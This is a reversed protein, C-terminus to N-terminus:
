VEVYFYQHNIYKEKKWKKLIGIIDVPANVLPQISTEGAGYKLGKVMVPINMERWFWLANMLIVKEDCTILKRNPTKPGYIVWDPLPNRRWEGSDIRRRIDATFDSFHQITMPELSWMVRNRTHAHIMETDLLLTLKNNLQNTHTWTDSDMTFGLILNKPLKIRLSSYTSYDKTLAVFIHKRHRTHSLKEFIDPLPYITGLSNQAHLSFIKVESDWYSIDSLADIFIIAPEEPFEFELDFQSHLFYPKFQKLQQFITEYIKSELEKSWLNEYFHKLKKTEAEAYHKALFRKMIGRAYCYKCGRLCGVVPNWTHTCWPINSTRIEKNKM